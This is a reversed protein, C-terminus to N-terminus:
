AVLFKVVASPPAIVVRVVRQRFFDRDGAQVPHVLVRPLAVVLAARPVVFDVVHAELVIQGVHVGGDSQSLELAGVVEHASATFDRAGVALGKAAVVRELRRVGLGADLVGPMEVHQPDAGLAELEAAILEDLSKRSRPTPHETCQM